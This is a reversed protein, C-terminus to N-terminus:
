DSRLSRMFLVKLSSGESLICFTPKISDIGLIFLDFYGKSNICCWNIFIEKGIFPTFFSDRNQKVSNGIVSIKIEIEDTDILPFLEIKQFELFLTLSDFAKVGNKFSSEIFQIDIIKQPLIIELDRM